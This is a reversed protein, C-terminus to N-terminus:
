APEPLENQYHHFITIKLGKTDQNKNLLCEGRM